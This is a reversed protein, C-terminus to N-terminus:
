ESRRQSRRTPRRSNDPDKYARSTTPTWSPRQNNAQQATRVAENLFFVAREADGMARAVIGSQSYYMAALRLDTCFEMPVRLAEIVEAATEFDGKWYLTMLRNVRIQLYVPHLPNSSFENEVTELIAENRWRAAYWYCPM